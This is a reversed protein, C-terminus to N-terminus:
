KSSDLMWPEDTTEAVPLFVFGFRESYSGTDRTSVLYYEDAEFQPPLESLRHKLITFDFAIGHKEWMDRQMSVPVDSCSGVIYGLDQARRVMDLTIPGPEMAIDLVGDIDFSILKRL